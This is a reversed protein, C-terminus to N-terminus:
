CPHRQCTSIFSSTTITTISHEHHQACSLGTTRWHLCSTYPQVFIILHYFSDARKIVWFAGMQEPPSFFSPPFFVVLLCSQALATATNGHRGNVRGEWRSCAAVASWSKRLAYHALTTCLSANPAIKEEEKRVVQQICRVCYFGPASGPAHKEIGHVSFIFLYFWLWM